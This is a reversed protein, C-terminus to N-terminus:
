VYLYKDHSKQTQIMHSFHSEIYASHSKQFDRKEGEIIKRMNEPRKLRGCKEVIM